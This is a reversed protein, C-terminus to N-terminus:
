VGPNENLGPIRPRNLGAATNYFPRSLSVCLAVSYRTSTERRAVSNAAAAVVWPVARPAVRSLMVFYISLSLFYAFFLPRSGYIWGGGGGVVSYEM